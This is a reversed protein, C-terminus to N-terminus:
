RSRDARMAEFRPMGRLPDLGPSMPGHFGLIQRFGMRSAYDLRILAEENNGLAAIILASWVAVNPRNSQEYLADLRRVMAQATATDGVHAAAVSLQGAQPLSVPSDASFQPLLSGYVTEWDRQFWAIEPVYLADRSPPQGV